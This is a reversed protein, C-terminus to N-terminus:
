GKEDLATAGMDAATQELLFPRMMAQLVQEFDDYRRRLNPTPWSAPVLEAPLLPESRLHRIIRASLAFAWPISAPDARDLTASATDLETGLQRATAAIAELPWLRAVLETRTTGSLPGTTVLWDSGLSPPPLNAPRLWIDPRLEGFRANALITRDTRRDALDRQDATAIATHWDGAWPEARTRRGVDQAEQRAILRDTLAYIGADNRVDGAAVMRSLATRMAGANIGFLEGFSVLARASLRPPHTGLLVSLAVSRANLPRLGDSMVPNDSRNSMTIM